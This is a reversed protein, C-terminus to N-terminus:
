TLCMYKMGSDKAIKAWEAPDYDKADFYVGDGQDTAYKRYQDLPMAEKELFWEGRESVSYIGWHIFMGFKADMYWQMQADDQQTIGMDSAVPRAQGTLLAFMFILSNIALLSLIKKM